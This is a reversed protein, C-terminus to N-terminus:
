RAIYLKGFGNNFLHDGSTEFLDIVKGNSRIEAKYLYVGNALKDGFDDTGDWCYETLNNGIRIPGIETEDIQKVLRGTITYINIRIQDPPENGTCTFVFRACTTFPNPYPYINSISQHNQVRFNIMYAQDASGNGSQDSLRVALTYRGDELGETQINVMAKQKSSSSPTFSYWANSQDISTFTDAGPFKLQIDFLNPDDLLLYPNEDLGSISILTNASVLDNDLIHFADFTVDLIPNREDKSVYFRKYFLNNNYETELVSKDHNASIFLQYDGILDTTELTDRIVISNGPLISDLRLTDLVISAGNKHILKIEAFSTDFQISSINKFSTAFWIAQGQQITDSSIENIDDPNIAGETVGNYLVTWRILNLPTKQDYDELHVEFKLFPYEKADISSIDIDTLRVNDQILKITGDRKFAYIRVFFSDQPSDGSAFDLKINSWGSAPGILETTIKGKSEKPTISTAFNVLQRTPPTVQNDYDAYKEIAPFDPDNKTGLLVFPENEKKGQLNIIGFTALEDFIDQEWNEIGTTPYSMIMVHYGSPLNKLYRLFSDRDEKNATEFNYLGCPQNLQYYEKQSEDIDSIDQNWYNVWPQNYKSGPESFRKETDPNVAIVEIGKNPSQWFIVYGGAVRIRRFYGIDGGATAMSYTNSLYRSFDFTRTNTDLLVYDYEANLYNTVYGESWGESEKFLYAFSSTSWESEVTGNVTKVRYFYDVGEVPPLSESHAIINDTTNLNINVLIPSNFKPTTDLEIIVNVAERDPNAIQFLFDVTSKNVISNLKPYILLPKKLEFLHEFTYTNNLEGDPQLESISDLPDVVIRFKILGSFFESKTITTGITDQYNPTRFLGTFVQKEEVQNSAYIEVSVSDKTTKGLNLLFFELEVDDIASFQNKISGKRAVVDPQDPAHLTLAPDGQYVMQRSNIINLNDSTNQYRSITSKLSTGISKGYNNRLLEEHLIKTYNRLPATYGYSAGALWNIGGNQPEFLFQEGISNDVYANGVACGNFIYFPYRGNNNLENADGIEVELVQAAAHGFYDLISAGKNIENQIPEKLADTTSLADDKSFVVRAAGLFSDKAIIYYDNLYGLFQQNELQDKGGAIQIINKQWEAPLMSEHTRVKDLYNQIHQNNMASVRGIPVSIRLDSADLSSVHLYDTPPNGMPPILDLQERKAENFRVQDYMQGKGLLLINELPENLSNLIYDIANRIAMPHHLGYYFQDYLEDANILLVNHSGGAASERYTKYDAAGANLSSHSILLYNAGSASISRFSIEQLGSVSKADSVDYIALSKNNKLSTNFKLVNGQIDGQIREGNTLDYIVPSTKSAPYNAFQFYDNGSDSSFRLGTGSSLDFSRPYQIKIYSIAHYSNTRVPEGAYVSTENNMLGTSFNLKSGGLEVRAYGNHEVLDLVNAKTGVSVSYGHNFGNISESPNNISYALIEMQANPGGTYPAPTSVKYLTQTNDRGSLYGEGDTYESWTQRADNGVPIGPSYEAGPALIAEYTFYADGTKGSYNGDYYSSIHKASATTSWTIFYSSSDTYLSVYPNTHESAKRYLVEDMSGDNKSGVFEIYDGSDFSNDGEGKVYILQEKGNKFLQFNKPNIGSVPLGADSLEQFTIRYLGDSGVKFKYYDQSYNIWENGYTQALASLNLGIVLLLILTRVM